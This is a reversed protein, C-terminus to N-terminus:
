NAGNLNQLIAARQTETETRYIDLAEEVSMKEIVINSFIQEKAVEIDPLYDAIFSNIVPLDYLVSNEDFIEMSITIREDVEVPDYAETIALTADYFSKDLEASPDSLSPLMKAKLVNGNEDRETVEYHVGEVGRTFLLQGEGGDHIYLIFNEFVKEPYECYNTIADATAPREIYYAKEKDFSELPLLVATEDAMKLNKDLTKYWTGAWYNFCGVVGSYFKDRCTSTKNSISQPDILGAEWAEQIRHLAANMEPELVGDVYQGQDEDYYIEPRGDQYFERLYIDYPSETNILGAATLPYITLNKYKEKFTIGNADEAECEGIGKFATLMDFFDEYSKPTDIGLADMWDKRVYTITGNGRQNPFGYLRDTGYESDYKLSEIYKEDVIGKAKLESGDWADTMDWLIGEAAYAPYYTSGLEIVDAPDEAAFTIGVKEYYQNHEPQEIILKIGTNEEYKDCLQQQGNEPRIITSVMFRISEPNGDANLATHERSGGCASLGTLCVLMLVSFATNRLLKKMM